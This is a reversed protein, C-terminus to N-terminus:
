QGKQEDDFEEFDVYDGTKRDGTKQQRPDYSIIVEGEQKERSKPRQRETSGPRPRGSLTRIIFYVLYFLLLFLVFRALM